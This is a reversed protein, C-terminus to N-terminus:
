KEDERCFLVMYFGDTQNIGPFLMKEKEKRFPFHELFWQTNNENEEKTLTCTSYILKGGPKVYQWVVSLITQQLAAIDTIDQRTMRYKIDGKRGIVGLGSCPLDAIVLDAREVDAPNLKAADFVEACLNTYRSRAINEKMLEVKRESIDRVTIEGTNNLKAAAHLAKGGPAGCVDIVTQNERIDAMEVIAMAGADQIMINGEAFGPIAEVRDLNKLQYAYPLDAVQEMEIGADAIEHLLAEKEQEGLNEEIRITVPRDALLGQLMLETQEEGFEAAWMEVIWLPM